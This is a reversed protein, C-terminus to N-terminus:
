RSGPKCRMNDDGASCTPVTLTAGVGRARDDWYDSDLHKYDWLDTLQEDDGILAVRIYYKYITNRVDFRSALMLKVVYCARSLGDDTVNVSGLFVGM